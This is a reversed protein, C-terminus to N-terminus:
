TLQLWTNCCSFTALKLLLGEVSSGLHCFKIFKERNLPSFLPQNLRISAAGVPVDGPQFSVGERTSSIFYGNSRRLVYDFLVTEGAAAVPGSGSALTQVKVGTATQYYEPQAPSPGAAEARATAASSANLLAVLSLVGSRRSASLSTPRRASAPAHTLPVSSSCVPQLLLAMSLLLWPCVIVPSTFLV